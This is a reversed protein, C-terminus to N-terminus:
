AWVIFTQSCVHVLSVPSEHLTHKEMFKHWLPTTSMSRYPRAFATRRALTLLYHTSELTLQPKEKCELFIKCSVKRTYFQDLFLKQRSCKVSIFSIQFLVFKLLKPDGQSSFSWRPITTFKRCIIKLSKELFDKSTIIEV